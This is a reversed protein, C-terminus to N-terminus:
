SRTEEEGEPTPWIAEASGAGPGLLAPFAAELYARYRRARGIGRRNLGSRVQGASATRVTTERTEFALCRDDWPLGLWDLLGRLQPEFDAVLTEYDIRRVRDPAAAEWASLTEECFRYYATLEGPDYTFPAGTPFILSYASFLCDSPARAIHIFRADPFCRLLLGIYLFNELSKDTMLRAAGRLPAIRDAYRAALPAFDSETLGSVADTKADPTAEPGAGAPGAAQKEAMVQTLVTAFAETEGGATIQPHGALAQELLTSGSRPMGVIFLAPSPQAAATGHIASGPGFDANLAAGRRLTNRVDYRLSARKLRNAKTLIPWARERDGARDLRSFLGFGIEAMAANGRDTPAADFLALRDRDLPTLAAERTLRAWHRYAEAAPGDAGTRAAQLYEEAAAELRGQARLAHGLALRTMPAPDPAAVLPRLVAEAAAADNRTMHQEALANAYIPDGQASLAAELLATADAARGAAQLARAWAIRARADRPRAACLAEFVAAARDPRGAAAYADGLPGLVEPREGLFGRCRELADIQAPRDGEAQAALFLGYWATGAEARSGGSAGLLAQRCQRRAEAVHGRAILTQILPLRVGQM